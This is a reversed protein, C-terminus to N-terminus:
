KEPISRRSRQGQGGSFHRNKQDLNKNCLFLM